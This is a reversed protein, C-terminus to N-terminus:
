ESWVKIFFDFSTKRHAKAFLMHSSDRMEREQSAESRELMVNEATKSIGRRKVRGSWLDGGSSTKNFVAQEKSVYQCAIYFVAPQVQHVARQQM